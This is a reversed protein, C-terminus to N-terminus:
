FPAMLEYLWRVGGGGALSVQTENSNLQDRAEKVMEKCISCVDDNDEPLDMYQWVNSICWSTMGCESAKSHPTVLSPPPLESLTM